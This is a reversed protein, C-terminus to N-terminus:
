DLRDLLGALRRSATRLSREVEFLDTAVDERRDDTAEEALRELRRTLDALATSMSSLEAHDHSM